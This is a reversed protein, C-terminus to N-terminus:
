TDATSVKSIVERMEDASQFRNAPKKELAKFIADVIHVPLRIEPQFFPLRSPTENVHQRVMEYFSDGDFTPKGTFSEYMVCGLAYIDSRADLESNTCQEPSMYRPTGVVEGTNTLSLRAKEADSSKAIGFDVIKVSLAKEQSVIINSPKIDRHVIGAKHVVSLGDLVQTFIAIGLDASLPGNEHLLSDLSQGSHFDMVLFPEHNATIGFDFVSVLNHHSLQSLTQAEAQFRSVVMKDDAYEPHLMKIAVPRNMLVHRGKYVIGMGGQGLVGEIAYRDGIVTRGEDYKTLYSHKAPTDLEPHAPTEGKTYLEQKAASALLGLTGQVLVGVKDLSINTSRAIEELSSGSSLMKLVSVQEPSLETNNPLKLPVVPKAIVEQQHRSEQVRLLRNAIGPDLWTAGSTVAKIASYLHEGAVTKLCYGDAGVELAEYIHEDEASATFMIIRTLPLAQKIEKSARIGDVKPLGIDMLVVNPKVALAQLIASVGDGSEAVVKLDPYTELACKLGFRTIAQDEAILITIPKGVSM